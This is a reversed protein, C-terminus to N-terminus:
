EIVTAVISPYGLNDKGDFLGYVTVTDGESVEIGMTNIISYMGNGDNEDTTLTFEGLMGSKSIVTIEGTVKVKTDKEIEEANAKVFDIVLAEQKLQANLQEQTPANQNVSIDQSAEITQESESKGCASLIVTILLAIALTLYKKM